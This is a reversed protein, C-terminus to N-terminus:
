VLRVPYSEFGLATFFAIGCVIPLVTGLCAVVIANGGVDLNLVNRIDLHMGSEFIVLSVGVFGLFQLPVYEHSFTHILDLGSPGFILGIGIEAPITSLGVIGSLRGAYWLAILYAALKLVETFALEAGSM